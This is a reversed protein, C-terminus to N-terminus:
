HQRWLCHYRGSPLKQIVGQLELQLIVPLLDPLPRGTATVLDDLLAEGKAAVARAVTRPVEPLSDITPGADAAVGDAATGDAAVGAARDNAWDFEDFVDQPAMALVAGQKILTLPGLARDDGVRGPVAFVTRGEESAFEATIMAGSKLGGEVVLVGPCLGNIIRNRGPFNTPNPKTGLPYESVIAGRGEAIQAALNQNQRPYIVDVGSGLVAVTDGDPTGLAGQHAATDVGLALGSVVTVGAEALRLAFRRSFALGYPSADRTGVIAFSRVRTAEDALTPPLAGRVYLVTPPDFIHRLLTPYDDHAPTLLGVGLAEARDLEQDVRDNHRAAIIADARKAGVGDVGLLAARDAACVRAADGFHDCLQKIGRPGLGPTFNLTLYARTQADLNQGGLDTGTTNPTPSIDSM